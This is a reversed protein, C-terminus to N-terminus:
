CIGGMVLRSDCAMIGGRLHGMCNKIALRNCGRMRRGSISYTYVKYFILARLIM